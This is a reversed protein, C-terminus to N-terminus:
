LDRHGRSLLTSDGDVWGGGGVEGVEGGGFAEGAGPKVETEWCDDEGEAGEESLCACM